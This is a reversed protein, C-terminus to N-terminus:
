SPLYVAKIHQEGTTLDKASKEASSSKNFCDSLEDLEHYFFFFSLFFRSVRMNM